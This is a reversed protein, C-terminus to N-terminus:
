CKLEIYFKKLLYDKRLEKSGLEGNKSIQMKTALIGQSFFELAQYILTQDQGSSNEVGDRLVLSSLMRDVTESVLHEINPRIWNDNNRPFQRPPRGRWQPSKRPIEHNLPRTNM